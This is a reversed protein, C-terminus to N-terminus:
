TPVERIGKETPAAVSAQNDSLTGWGKKASHRADSLVSQQRSSTSKQAGDMPQLM